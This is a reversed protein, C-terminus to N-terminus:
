IVVRVGMVIKPCGGSSDVCHVRGEAVGRVGRSVGKSPCKVLWNM